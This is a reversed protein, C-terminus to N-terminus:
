FSYLLFEGDFGDLPYHGVADGPILSGIRAHATASMLRPYGLSSAVKEMRFVFNVERGLLHNGSTTPSGGMTVRGFHVVVRFRPDEAAQRGRLACLAAAVSEAAPDRGPWYALLGDGVYADITGGHLDIIRKCDAVWRRAIRPVEEPGVAHIIRTFGEIDAVVLWVDDSRVRLLTEEGATAAASPAESPQHFTLVYEGIRIEDGETLRSPQTVRRGNLFTGNASGLDVLWYENEDQTHVIAHRRSVTDSALVLTSGSARGLFSTAVLVTREGSDSELWATLSAHATL